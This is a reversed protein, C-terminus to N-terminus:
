HQYATHTSDVHNASDWGYDLLIGRVLPSSSAVLGLVNLCTSRLSMYPSTESLNVLEEIANPNKQAFVYNLGNQSSLIYGLIWLALRQKRSGCVSKFADRCLTDYDVVDRLM